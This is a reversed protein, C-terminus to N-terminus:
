DMFASRLSKRAQFVHWKVAEISCNMIQAIEKQPLEEITSLVLATRQRAPLQDMANRVQELLELTALRQRPDTMSASAKFFPDSGNGADADVSITRLANGRARRYNLALNTAIRMLWSGFRQPDKLSELKTFARLFTDQAVELADHANNLLRGITSLVRRYYRSILADFASHNGSLVERVLDSDAPTLNTPWVTAM